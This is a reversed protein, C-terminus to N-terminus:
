AGARVAEKASVISPLLPPSRWALMAVMALVPPVPVGKAGSGPMQALLAVALAQLPHTARLDHTM